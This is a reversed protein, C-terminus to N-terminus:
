LKEIFSYLEKKYQKYEKDFSHLNDAIRQHKQRYEHDNSAINGSLMASLEKEHLRLDHLFQDVVEGNYYTLKNQLHELEAQKDHNDAEAVHKEMLSQFFRLEDKRFNLESLWQATGYHLDEISRELIFDSKPATIGEM